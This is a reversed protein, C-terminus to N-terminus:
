QPFNMGILPAMRVVNGEENVVVKTDTGSRKMRKKARRSIQKKSTPESKQFLTKLQSKLIMSSM